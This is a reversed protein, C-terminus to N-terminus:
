MFGLTKWIKLSLLWASNMLKCFPNRTKPSLLKSLKPLRLIKKLQIKKRIWNPEQKLFILTSRAKSIKKLLKKLRFLFTKMQKFWRWSLIWKSRWNSWSEKKLIQNIKRVLLSKLNISSLILKTKSFLFQLLLMKTEKAQFCLLSAVLIKWLM